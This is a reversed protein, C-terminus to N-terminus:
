ACEWERLRLHVALTTSTWQDYWDLVRENQPNRLTPFFGTRGGPGARETFERYHGPVSDGTSDRWGCAVSLALFEAHRGRHVRALALQALFGQRGNSHGSWMADIAALLELPLERGHKERMWGDSLRDVAELLLATTLLDAHEFEREVLYGNLRDLSAAAPVRVARVSPRALPAPLVKASDIPRGTADAEHLRALIALEDAGLLREDRADVYWTNALHYNREGHLLIPFFPRGHRMGELIMRTIDDSDQSQPSMLVIVTTAYRLQQRITWFHADGPRLDGVSWVTLGARRLQDVLQRGYGVDDAAYCVVVAHQDPEAIPHPPSPLAAKITDVRISGPGEPARGLIVSVLDDVKEHYERESVNRFDRWVRNLAFPPLAVDGILVPIFRLDRDASARALAAYEELARPSASSAPSIIAIGNASERIATDLRPVIVDGPLLSWEDFFVELGRDALHDTLMRAWEADARAYSIFVDIM